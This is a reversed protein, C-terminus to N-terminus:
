DHGFHQFHCATARRKSASYKWGAQQCFSKCHPIHLSCPRSYAPSRLFSETPVSPVIRDGAKYADCAHLCNDYDLYLLPVTALIRAASPAHEQLVGSACFGIAAMM